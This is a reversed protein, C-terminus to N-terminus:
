KRAGGHRLADLGGLIFRLEILQMHYWEEANECGMERNVAFSGNVIMWFIREAAKEDLGAERMLLPVMRPKQSLFTHRIIRPYLTEDHLLPRYIDLEAVRHCPPLKQHERRIRNVDDTAVLTRVEELMHDCDVDATADVRILADDIVADVLAYIDEFHAYFTARTIGAASCVSTVRVDRFSKKRLLKLFAEKIKVKTEVNRKRKVARDM